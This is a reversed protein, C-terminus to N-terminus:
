LRISLNCLTAFEGIQFGSICVEPHMSSLQVLVISLCFSPCVFRCGFDKEESLM